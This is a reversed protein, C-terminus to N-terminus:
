INCDQGERSHAHLKLSQLKRMIILNATKFVPSFNRIMKPENQFARVKINLSKLQAASLLVAKSLLNVLKPM